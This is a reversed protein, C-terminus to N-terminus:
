RATSLRNHTDIHITKRQQKRAMRITTMTTTTSRDIYYAHQHDPSAFSRSVFSREGARACLPFFSESGVQNLKRHAESKMTQKGAHMCSKKLSQKARWWCHDESRLPSIQESPEDDERTPNNFL